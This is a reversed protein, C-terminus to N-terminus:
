RTYKRTLAVVFLAMLAAGFLAESGALFRSFGEKPQLDGYGLTTFSIPFKIGRPRTPITQPSPNSDLESHQASGARM